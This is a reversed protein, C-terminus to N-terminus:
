RGVIPSDLPPAGGVPAADHVATLGQEDGIRAIPKAAATLQESQLRSGGGAAVGSAWRQCTKVIWTAADEADLAPISLGLTPDVPQRLIDSVLVRLAQVHKLSKEVDEGVSPAGAGRGIDEDHHSLHSIRQLLKSLDTIRTSTRVGYAASGAAAAAGSRQAVRLLSPTIVRSLILTSVCNQAAVVGFKVEAASYVFVCLTSICPHLCSEGPMRAKVQFNAFMASIARHMAASEARQDATPSLQEVDRVLQTLENELFKNQPDKGILRLCAHALTAHVSNASAILSPVQSRNVDDDIIAKGLQSASDAIQAAVQLIRLMLEQREIGTSCAWLLSLACGWHMQSGSAASGPMRFQVLVDAGLRLHPVRPASRLAVDGAVGAAAGTKSRKEAEDLYALAHSIYGDLDSQVVTASPSGAPPNTYLTDSIGGAGATRPPPLSPAAGGGPRRSSAEMYSVGTDAHTGGTGHVVAGHGDKGDGLLPPLSAM